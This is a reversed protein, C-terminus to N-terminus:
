LDMYEKEIFGGCDGCRFGAFYKNGRYDVRTELMYSGGRDSFLNYGCHPCPRVLATNRRALSAGVVAAVILLLLIIPWNM